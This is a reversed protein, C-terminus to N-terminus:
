KNLIPDIKIHKLISTIVIFQESLESFLEFEITSPKKQNAVFHYASQGVQLYHTLTTNYHDAQNPFFSCIILCRNGIHQHKIIAEKPTYVPEVWAIDIPTDTLAQDRMYQNLINAIYRETHATLQHNTLNIAQQISRQWVDISQTPEQQPQM